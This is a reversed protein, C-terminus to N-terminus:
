APGGWVQTATDIVLGMKAVQDAETLTTGLDASAFGCKKSM